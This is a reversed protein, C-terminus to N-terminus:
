DRDKLFTDPPEHNAIGYLGVVSDHQMVADPQIGQFIESRAANKTQNWIASPEQV